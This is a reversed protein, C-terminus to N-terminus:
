WIGTNLYDATTKGRLLNMPIMAFHVTAGGALFLIKYNPPINVLERFDAEMEHAFQDFVPTRHGLEMVSMGLGRWNLMETQATKLVEEPIAAPGPSFNYVRSM